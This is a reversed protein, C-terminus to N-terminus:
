HLNDFPIQNIFRTLANYHKRILTYKSAPWGETKTVSLRLIDRQSKLIECEYLLHDSPKTRKAVHAHQHM